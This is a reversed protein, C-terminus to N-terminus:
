YHNKQTGLGQLYLIFSAIDHSDRGFHSSFFAFKCFVYVIKEDLQKITERPRKNTKNFLKQLDNQLTKIKAQPLCRNFYTLLSSICVVFFLFLNAFLLHMGCLISDIVRAMVKEIGFVQVQGVQQIERNAIADDLRKQLKQEFEVTM